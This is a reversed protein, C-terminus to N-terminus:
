EAKIRFSYLRDDDHELAENFDNLIYFYGSDYIIGFFEGDFLKIHEGTSKNIRYMGDIGFYDRSYYINEDTTNLYTFFGENLTFIDSSCFFDLTLELIHNGSTVYVYYDEGLSLLPRFGSTIEVPWVMRNNTYPYASVFSYNEENGTFYYLHGAEEKLSYCIDEMLKESEESDHDMKYLYENDDLNSFFLTYDTINLIRIKGLPYEKGSTINVKNVYSNYPETKYYLWSGRITIINPKLIGSVFKDNYNNMNLSYIGPESGEDTYYLINNDVHIIRQYPDPLFCERNETDDFSYRGLYCNVGFNSDKHLYYFGSLDSSLIFNNEETNLKVKDLSNINIKYIKNNDYSNSFYLWSNHIFIEGEAFEETLLTKEMGDPNISYIGGTYDSYYFRNNYVQLSSPVCDTIETLEGDTESFSCLTMEEKDLQYAGYMKENYFFPMFPTNESIVTHSSGDTKLKVFGSGYLEFYLYDGHLLPRDFITGSFLEKRNSGNHDTRIIKTTGNGNEITLYLWNRDSKFYLIKDRYIVQPINERTNIRYLLKEGFEADSSIDTVSYFIYNNEMYFEYLYDMRDCIRIGRYEIPISGCFPISNIIFIYVTIFIIKKM